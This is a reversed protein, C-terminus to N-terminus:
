NTVILLTFIVVVMAPILVSVLALRTDNERYALGYLLLGVVSAPIYAVMVAWLGPEDDATLSLLTLLSWFCWIMMTLLYM